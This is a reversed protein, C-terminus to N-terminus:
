VMWVNKGITFCSQTASPQVQALLSSTMATYRGVLKTKQGIRAVTRGREDLVRLPGSKATYGRPWLVITREGFSPFWICRGDSQLSVFALGLPPPQTPSLTPLPIAPREATQRAIRAITAHWLATPRAWVAGNTIGCLSDERVVVTRAADSFLARVPAVDGGQCADGVASSIAPLANTADEIGAVARADTVLGSGALLEPGSDAEYRCVRVGVAAFPVLRGTADGARGPTSTDAVVPCGPVHVAVTPRLSSVTTTPPVAAHRGSGSCAAGAVLLLSLLFGSYRVM